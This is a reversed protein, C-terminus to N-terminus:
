QFFSTSIHNKMDAAEEQSLLNNYELERIEFYSQRYAHVIHTRFTMILLTIFILHQFTSFRYPTITYFVLISLFLNGSGERLYVFREYQDRCKSNWQKSSASRVLIFRKNWDEHVQYWNKPIWKKFLLNSPAPRPSWWHLGITEGAIQLTLGTLFSLPIIILWVPYSLGNNIKSLDDVTLNFCSLIACLTILGPMVKGLIDRMFFSQYLVKVFSEM